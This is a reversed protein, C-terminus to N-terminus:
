DETVEEKEKKGYVKRSITMPSKAAYRSALFAHRPSNHDAGSVTRYTWRLKAGMEKSTKKADEYFFKARWVRDWKHTTATYSAPRVRSVFDKDGMLIILYKDFAQKLDEKTVPTGKLGGYFIDDFNGLTYWGAGNAIALSFRAEPMFLVMRQVFQAGSSHGFICYAGVRMKRDERVFDFLQEILNFTWKEKPNFIRKEEDYINGCNYKWYPFEAMTLEPCLVLFNFEKAYRQWEDRYRLGDRSDGHMVFVIRSNETLKEPACYYVKVESVNGSNEYKFVFVGTDSGIVPKGYSCSCFYLSFCFVLFLFGSGAYLREHLRQVLLIKKYIGM